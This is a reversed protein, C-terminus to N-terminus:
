KSKWSDQIKKINEESCDGEVKVIAFNSGDM